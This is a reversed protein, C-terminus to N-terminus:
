ADGVRMQFRILLLAGSIEHRRAVQMALLDVDGGHQGALPEADLLDIVANPQDAEM